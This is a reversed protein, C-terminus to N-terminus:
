KSSISAELWSLRGTALTVGIAPAFEEVREIRVTFAGTSRALAWDDIVPDALDMAVFKGPEHQFPGSPQHFHGPTRSVRM